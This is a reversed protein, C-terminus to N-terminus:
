GNGIDKYIDLIDRDYDCGFTGIYRKDDSMHHWISYATEEDIVYKQNLQIHLNFTKNLDNMLGEDSVWVTWNINDYVCGKDKVYHPHVLHTIQYDMMNLDGM